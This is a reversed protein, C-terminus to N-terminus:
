LSIPLSSRKMSVLMNGSGSWYRILKLMFCWTITLMLAVVRGGILGALAILFLILYGFNGKSEAGKKEVILSTVIGDAEQKECKNESNVSLPSGNESEEEEASFGERRDEHEVLGEECVETSAKPEPETGSQHKMSNKRLKKSVLKKIFKAGMKPVFKKRGKGKSKECVSDSLDDTHDGVEVKEGKEGDMSLYENLGMESVGEDICVIGCSMVEIEEMSSDSEVGPEVLEFVVGESKEKVIVDSRLVLLAYGMRRAVCQLGSKANSWPKVLCSLRKGVCELFLLLFASLTIGVAFKTTCLALVVVAFVKAAAVFVSSLDGSGGRPSEEAVIGSSEADSVRSDTDESVAHDDKRAVLNEIEGSSPVALISLDDSGKEAIQDSVRDVPDFDSSKQSNKRSQNKKSQKRLRDRNKVFLDILSTPFGTQVVMSGGRRKPSQLDAVMQSIRGKKWLLPM